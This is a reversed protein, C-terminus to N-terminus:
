PSKSGLFPLNFSPMRGPTTAQPAPAAPAMAPVPTAAPAPAASGGPLPQGAVAYAAMRILGARDSMGPAFVQVVPDGSTGISMDFWQLALDPRASTGIGQALHHGLLEAYPREGLTTLILASGVAVDMNDTVYGVGLCIKATGALQAPAMGSGLVFGSVGQLVADRGTVSVAAVHDAMAPGFGGCQEAIQAPTFGAVKAMLEESQTIAYTRALCFQESLAFAPDQMTVQTVFGGNTNTVLSVKSCHSALSVQTAAAAQGMFSPLGPAVAPAAPVVAQAFPMAPAAPAPAAAMVGPQAPPTVGLREDRWAILLGKVGRPNTAIMQATTAGGAQARYYSSVLLDREFDNLQGTGPFGLTVQYETIAARSRPGLAGDPTGVPYGFYNLAVQVERNAERQASTQGSSSRTTSKNRNKNAENVIAGGIIGGVIGGVLANDAAARQVPVVVLTAALCTTAFRAFKM